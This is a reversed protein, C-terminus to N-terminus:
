RDSKPYRLYRRKTAVHRFGMAAYMAKPTDGADAVLSLAGTGRERTDAACRYMLATALGRHRYAPEVFVDEVYGVGDLGDWISAMGRAEGGVYALWKRDPPTKLRALRALSEGVAPLPDRGLKARAEAWDLRKLRDAATWDRDDTALRLDAAPPKGVLKGELMMLVFDRAEYGESVLRGEFPPPTDGDVEFCRHPCGAFEREARALLRDIEDPSSATNSHGYNAVHIDPLEPNRVFVAGVAEFSRHGLAEHAHDVRIAVRGWDTM